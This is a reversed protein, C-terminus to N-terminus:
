RQWLILQLELPVSLKESRPIVRCTYDDAARIAPICITYTVLSSSVAGPSVPQMEYHEPPAGELGDGFLELRLDGTSFPGVSLETWVHHFGEKTEFGSKGFSLQAWQEQFHQKTKTLRRGEKGNHCCRERYAKVAPLYVNSVYDRLSRNSSFQPTIVAMSQRMKAVWRDPIGEENVSYYAPIVQEELLTYLQGAEVEDWGLDHQHDQRDGIAWGVDESYAEDWWGDRESLNLGGNVLVKMGSTGCAEWPRLPTNIWLDVGQVLHESVHMDYDSLFIVRHFLNETQILQVWDRILGQGGSDTAHAKGAVVLQVPREEHLLIKKLRAPDKLLLNPRKYAAFRRAFGITLVRPDFIEGAAEVEAATGGTMAAHQASRFRIYQVFTEKQRCRLDWFAKDSLSRIRQPLSELTGLWRDKGCSETWFRDAEASDWTSMHVGNTITDVPIEDLPWRPFLGAFVQRSIQGHLRSVGNVRGCGHLALYATHFPETSDDPNKRGLKLLETLPIKLKEKAYPGLFHEVLAPEYCDFGAGVATHTTFVTGSRTITLAEEFSLSLEEMLSAARELLAFATHGENLHLVQPQLKLAKILRWGGIGLVVQQLLRKAADGGYLEDTISRYIPFNAADNSDLMYLNVRGVQAKWTRLWVRAGPLEIPIRLWEGADDRLPTLPLQGPENFPTAYQQNGDRHIVQRSYGQQFLLGVGFLPVGLDSATKLLDGAVNGLGGSYIPLAESLMYEMSFFAVGSLDKDKDTGQFWAPALAHQRKRELLENISDAVLPDALAEKIRKRSVTQLVVLPNQTLEWLVPDLARWLKDTAHDWTWRLDMALELLPAQWEEVHLPLTSTM